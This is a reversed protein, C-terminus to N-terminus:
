KYIKELYHAESDESSTGIVEFDPLLAKLKESANGMIVGKGVVQLMEKDNLGDGFAIAEEPLIGEKELIEIVANGKTAEKIMVELCNDLSATIDLKEVFEKNARLEKELEELGKINESIFFIKSIEQGKLKEFDVVKPKFGSEVHYEDFESVHIETFWNDGAYVGRIIDSSVKVNLLKETLDKPINHVIIEHNENDHVKSGNASVLYSDAGLQNKFCLADTHHRGTAIIFKVGQGIIKKIVNKTYESIKHEGNLLTGDLDSIVVKYKM